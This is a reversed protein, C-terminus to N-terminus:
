FEKNKLIIIEGFNETSASVAVKASVGAGEVAIVEKEDSFVAVSNRLEPAVGLENFLKKFTKTCNRSRLNIKDGEARSRLFIKGDIRDCDILYVLGNNFVNQLNNTEERNIKRFIVTKGCFNHKGDTLEFPMVPEYEREPFDLVGKRVRVTVAGSVMVSGSDSLLLCLREVASSEPTIGKETELIKVLARKRVPVPADNLVKADFGDKLACRRILDDALSSLYAEDESLSNICRVASDTFSPNVKSLETIVNHRIRNRSYSVDANTRDTVFPISNRECYDLIEAKSCDFLPRVINGRVAPISCLGRLATGRAYNFLFTEARDDANHATAIIINDGLSDFFSYRVERGAEEFSLGKEKAVSAVDAKLTHIPVSNANCYDVVFAEDADAEAGRLCHNVHAASVSSICLEDKLSLLAHLLAMSDSGGSLAVVVDSNEPFMRHRKAASLVKDIM